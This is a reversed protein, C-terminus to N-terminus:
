APKRTEDDTSEQAAEPKGTAVSVGSQAFNAAQKAAKYATEHMTGALTIAQNMFAVTAESGAPANKAVSEVFRQVQRNAQQYQAEFLETLQTQMASTIEAVHREYSLVKDTSPLALAAPLARNDDGQGKEFEGRARERWDSLATRATDLNLRILKELGELTKGAADYFSNLNARQVAAVQEPLEAM